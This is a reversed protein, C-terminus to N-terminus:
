QAHVRNADGVSILQYDILEFKLPADASLAKKEIIRRWNVDTKSDRFFVVIAAFKTEDKMAQSLSVASGPNIVVGKSDLLDQALVAKDNTLLADYSAADFAKRDKLQYVRVVVSLPKQNEDPNLADRAHFDINLVKVQKTFIAKSASVTTDSIAQWAGCASLSLSILVLTISSFRM